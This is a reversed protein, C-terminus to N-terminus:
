RGSHRASVFQLSATEGAHLVFHHPNYRFYDGANLYYKGSSFDVKYPGVPARFHFWGDKDTLATYNRSQGKVTIQVGSVDIGDTEAVVCGEIVGYPPAQPINEISRVSDAANSLLGSNGCSDIDLRGNTRHAFLFYARNKELPLRIDSDETYITFESQAPGRFIRAARVRYYWGGVDHETYRGSIVTGIFVVDSQFYEGNARIEPVGCYAGAPVPFLFPVFIIFAAYVSLGRRM